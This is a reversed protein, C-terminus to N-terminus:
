EDDDVKSKRLNGDPTTSRYVARPNLGGDAFSTMEEYKRAQKRRETLNLRKKRSLRDRWMSRFM